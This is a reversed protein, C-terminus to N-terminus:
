QEHECRGAGGQVEGVHLMGRLFLAASMTAAVGLLVILHRVVQAVEANIYCDVARQQEALHLRQARYFAILRQRAAVAQVRELFAEHLRVDKCSPPLLLLSTSPRRKGATGNKDGNADGALCKQRQKPKARRPCSPGLMGACASADWRCESAVTIFLANMALRRSHRSKWSAGQFSATDLLARCTTTAGATPECWSVPGASVGRTCASLHTRLRGSRLANRLIDWHKAAATKEKRGQPAPPTPAVNDTNTDAKQASTLLSELTTVTGPIGVAMPLSTATLFSSRSCSSDSSADSAETKHVAPVPNEAVRPVDQRGVAEEMAIACENASVGDADHAVEQRQFFLAPVFTYGWTSKRGHQQYRMQHREKEESRFPILRLVLKWMWCRSRGQAQSDCHHRKAEGTEIRHNLSRQRIGMLFGVIVAVLPVLFICSTVFSWLPDPIANPRFTSLLGLAALIWLMQQLALSVVFEMPRAYPRCIVLVAAVGLHLAVCGAFGKWPSAIGLDEQMAASFIVMAIKQALVVLKFYCWSREYPAYLFRAKNQSLRVREYYAACRRNVSKTVRVSDRRRTSPVAMPGAGVQRNGPIQRTEVVPECTTPAESKGPTTVPAEREERWASNTATDVLPYYDLAKLVHRTALGYLLVFFVSYMATSLISSALIFKDVNSCPVSHDAALYLRKTVNGQSHTANGDTAAATNNLERCPFLSFTNRLIPTYMFSVILFCLSLFFHRLWLKIAFLRQRGRRTFSLLLSVSLVFAALFLVGAPIYFLSSSHIPQLAESDDVRAFMFAVSVCILLSFSKVMVWPISLTKTERYRRLLLAHYALDAKARRVRMEEMEDREEERMFTATRLTGSNDKRSESWVTASNLLREAVREEVTCPPHELQQLQELLQAKKRMGWVIRLAVGGVVLLLFVVTGVATLAIMGSRPFNEILQSLASSSDRVEESTRARLLIAGGMMLFVTSYLLCAFVALYSPGLITALLLVLGLPCVINTLAFKLRQDLPLWAPLNLASHSTETATDNCLTVNAAGAGDSSYSLVRMVSNMLRLPSSYLTPFASPAISVTLNVYQMYNLLLELVDLLM